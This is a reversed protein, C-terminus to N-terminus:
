VRGNMYGNGVIALVDFLNRYSKRLAGAVILGCGLKNSDM